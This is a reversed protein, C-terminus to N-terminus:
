CVKMEQFTCDISSSAAIFLTTQFLPNRRSSDIASIRLRSQICVFASSDRATGGASVQGPVLVVVVFDALPKVCDETQVVKFWVFHLTRKDILDHGDTRIM